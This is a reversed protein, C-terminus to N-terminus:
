CTDRRAYDARDQRDRGVYDDASHPYMRWLLIHQSGIVDYVCWRYASRNIWSSTKDRFGRASLHIIDTRSGVWWTMPEGYDINEYLCVEGPYCARASAAAPALATVACAAVAIVVIMSRGIKM